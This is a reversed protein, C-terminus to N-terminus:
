STQKQTSKLDVERAFFISEKEHFDLDLMEALKGVESAKFENDNEIKKQLGYPTIGLREAVAKYKLGKRNIADRLKTTNTM